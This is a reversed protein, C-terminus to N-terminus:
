PPPRRPAPRGGYHLTFDDHYCAVLAAVDGARWAAVYRDLAKTIEAGPVAPGEDSAMRPDGPDRSEPGAGAALSPSAAIAPLAGLIQRRTVLRARTGMAARWGAVGGRATVFGGSGRGP